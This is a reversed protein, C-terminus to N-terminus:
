INAILPNFLNLFDQGGSELAIIKKKHDPWYDLFQHVTYPMSGNGTRVYNTNGDIFIFPIKSPDVNIICIDKTNYKFIKVTTSNFISNGIEFYGALVNKIEIMLGDSNQKGEKLLSYDRDLGMLNKTEDNVGIYLTGGFSNAFAQVTKGVIHQISKVPKTIKVSAPATTPYAFTEKFEVYDGEDSKLDKKFKSLLNIEVRESDTHIIKKINGKEGTEISVFIGDYDIAVLTLVEDVIGQVLKGTEIKIQVILGSYIDDRITPDM